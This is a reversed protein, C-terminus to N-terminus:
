WLSGRREREWYSIVLAAGSVRRGVVPELGSLHVDASWISVWCPRQKTHKWKEPGDSMRGTMAFRLKISKNSWYRSYNEDEKRKM